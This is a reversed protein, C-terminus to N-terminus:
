GCSRSVFIAINDLDGSRSNVAQPRDPTLVQLRSRGSVQVTGESMASTHNEIRHNWERQLATKVTSWLPPNVTSLRGLDVREATSKDETTM